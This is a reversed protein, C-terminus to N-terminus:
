RKVELKGIAVQDPTVVTMGVRNRLGGSPLLFDATTGDFVIGDRNSALDLRFTFLVAHAALVADTTVAGDGSAKQSQAVVLDGALPGSTAITAAAASPSAGAPLAAGPTFDGLQVKSGDIPLDFGTSYGTLPQDGVVFALTVSQLTPTGTRVLCIANCAAPDTYSLPGQNNDGCAVLAVPAALLLLSRIV